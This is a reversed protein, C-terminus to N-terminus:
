SVSSSDSLSDSTSSGAGTGGREKRSTASSESTMSTMFTLFFRKSSAIGASIEGGGGVLKFREADNLDRAEFANRERLPVSREEFGRACSTNIGGTGGIGERGISCM